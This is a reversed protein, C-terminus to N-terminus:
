SKLGGCAAEFKERDFRPNDQACHDAIRAVANDVANNYIVANKFSYTVRASKLAAALAIYDKKSMM